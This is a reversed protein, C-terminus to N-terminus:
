VLGDIKVSVEIKLINGPLDIKTLKFNTQM